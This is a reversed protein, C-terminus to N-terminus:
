EQYEEEITQELINDKDIADYVLEDLEEVTINSFKVPKKNLMLILEGKVNVFLRCLNVCHYSYEKYLIEQTVPDRKIYTIKFKLM